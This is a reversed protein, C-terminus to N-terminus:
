FDTPKEWYGLTKLESTISVCFYRAPTAASQASAVCDRIVGYCDPGHEIACVQIRQYLRRRLQPNDGTGFMAELRKAITRFKAHGDGAEKRSSDDADEDAASPVRPTLQKATM